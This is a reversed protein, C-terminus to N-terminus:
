VGASEPLALEAPRLPQNIKVYEAGIADAVDEMTVKAHHRQAALFAAHVAAAYITGGTLKDFGGLWEYDLDETPIGKRRVPHFMRRWLEKRQEADPPPFTIVFRLRRRFAPDIAGRNNTALVALGRYSELRQLLYSVEINAYRDHSDKVETRKGFLADAEDFFLVAGGDEFADFVRRLNKETEGIYKNVVASLDIRYLDLRLAAAVVEAATTKGTGSEGAFLASIGLGRNTRERLHWDDYVRWRGRVQAILEDLQDGADASLILDGRGAAPVVRQALGNVAPRTRARCEDWAHHFLVRDDPRATGHGALVAATVKHIASEDLSFQAALM